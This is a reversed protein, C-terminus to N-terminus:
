ASAEAKAPAYRGTSARVIRGERVERMLLQHVTPPKVEMGRGRLEAVIEKPLWGKGSEALLTRVAAATTTAGGKPRGRRPGTSTAKATTRPRGRRRPAASPAAPAVPASATATATSSVGLMAELASLREGFAATAKTSADYAERLASIEDM